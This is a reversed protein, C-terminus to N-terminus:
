AGTSSLSSAVEAPSGSASALGSAGAHDGACRVADGLRRRAEQVPADFRSLQMGALSPDAAAVMATVRRDRELEMRIIRWLLPRAWRALSTCGKALAYSAFLDTVGRSVPTLVVQARVADRRREGTHASEWYSDSAIRVPAYAVVMEDVFLDDSAGGLCRWIWRAPAPLQRQPGRATIRVSTEDSAVSVNVHALGATDYGFLVHAEACHEMETLNDLVLEMPAAIRLRLTGVPLTGAMHLSPPASAGPTDAVWILGDSERCALVSVALREDPTGPRTVSGDTAFRWGHYPCVLQEGRVLGESLPARRHPCLNPLAGVHGTATRFVAVARGQVSVCRRARWRLERSLLVPLWFGQAAPQDLATQLTM